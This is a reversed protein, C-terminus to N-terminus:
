NFLCMGLILLNTLAPIMRDCFLKSGLLLIPQDSSLNHRAVMQRTKTGLSNPYAKTAGGFGVWFPKLVWFGNTLCQWAETLSLKSQPYTPQKNLKCFQFKVQFLNNRWTSRIYVVSTRNELYLKKRVRRQTNLIDSHLVICYLVIRPWLCRRLNSNILYLNWGEKLMRIIVHKDQRTRHSYSFKFRQM